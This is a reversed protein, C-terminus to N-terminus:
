RQRLHWHNKRGTFFAPSLGYKKNKGGIFFPLSVGICALGTTFVRTRAATRAESKQQYGALPSAVILLIGGSMFVTGIQTLVQRVPSKMQIFNLNKLAITRQTKNFPGSFYTINQNHFRDVFEEDIEESFLTIKVSDSSLSDLACEINNFRSLHNLSKQTENVQLVIKNSPIRITKDPNRENQLYFKKPNLFIKETETLFIPNRFAPQNSKKFNTDSLALGTRSYALTQCFFLIILFPCITTKM